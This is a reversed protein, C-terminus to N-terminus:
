MRLCLTLHNHLALFDMTNIKLGSYNLFYIHQRSFSHLSRYIHCYKRSSLVVAAYKNVQSIEESLSSFGTQMIWMRHHWASYSKPNEHLADETVRLETTAAKSAGDRDGGQIGWKRENIEMDPGQFLGELQKTLQLHIALGQLPGPSSVNFCFMITLSQGEM